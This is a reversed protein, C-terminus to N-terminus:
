YWICQHLVTDNRWMLEDCLRLMNPRLNFLLELVSGGGGSNVLSAAGMLLLTAGCNVAECPM